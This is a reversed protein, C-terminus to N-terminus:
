GECVSSYSPLPFGQSVWGGVGEAVQDISLGLTQDVDLWGLWTTTDVTVLKDNGLFLDREVLAGNASSLSGVLITLFITVSCIAAHSRWAPRLPLLSNTKATSGVTLKLHHTM